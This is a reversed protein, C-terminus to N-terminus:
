VDGGTEGGLNEVIRSARYYLEDFTLIEPSRINRRYLEFCAVKLVVANDRRTAKGSSARYGPARLFDAVAPITERGHDDVLCNPEVEPEGEAQAVDFIQQRFASHGWGILRNPAPHIM